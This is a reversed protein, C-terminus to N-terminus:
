GAPSKKIREELLIILENARKEQNYLATLWRDAATFIDEDQRPTDLALRLDSQSDEDLQSLMRLIAMISYGATRLMRVIRLRGIEVPGFCRYGNQENRPVAILGNREWTRLADITVGLLSATEGMRLSRATADAATGGAWRELLQVASEAQAQEARVRGLHLYAMELAGGLDGSAAQKVLNIVSIRLVKGPYEGSLATRAFCMQDLHESTYLRYGSRNREVPPIYGWEEYLRVTNPHCGAARAVKSTSLRNYPM